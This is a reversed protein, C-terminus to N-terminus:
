NNVRDIEIVTLTIGNFYDGDIDDNCISGKPITIERKLIDIIDENSFVYSTLRKSESYGRIEM